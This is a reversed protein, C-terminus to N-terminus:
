FLAILQHEDWFLVGYAYCANFVWEHLLYFSHARLAMETIGFIHSSAYADLATDV